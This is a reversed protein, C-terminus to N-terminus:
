WNGVDKASGEGGERQDSGFTYVDYEGHQGPFRYLYPHGWPDLLSDRKKIYPGDWAPAGEPKDILANLGESASPFRGNDLHFSDVAASLADVQIKATETKARGLYKTVRPAAVSALLALVLLVVMLELLTFGAMRGHETGRSKKKHM